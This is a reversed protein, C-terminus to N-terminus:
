RSPAECSDMTGTGDCISKGGLLANLVTCGGLDPGVAVQTGDTCTFVGSQFDYKAGGSLPVEVFGDRAYGCTSDGPLCYHVLSPENSFQYATLCLDKVVGYGTESLNGFSASQWAGSQWCYAEGTRGGYHRCAGSPQYCAVFPEFFQEVCTGALPTGVCASWALDYVRPEILQLDVPGADRAHGPAAAQDPTPDFSGLFSAEEGPGCGLSLALVLMGRPMTM